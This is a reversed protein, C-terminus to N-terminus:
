DGGADGEIGLLAAAVASRAEPYGELADMMATRVAVWQPALTVNVRTGDDLDGILRALLTLDQRAESHFARIAKWNDAQEARDLHTKIRSYLGKLESLLDIDVLEPDERLEGSAEPLLHNRYHRSVSSRSCGVVRAVDAQTITGGILAADLEERQPHNCV